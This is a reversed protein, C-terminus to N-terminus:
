QKDIKYITTQIHLDSDVLKDKGYGREGKTVMSRNEIDTLRNKKKEEKLLYTLEYRIKSKIYLHYWITNTKSKSWKIYYDRPGDM